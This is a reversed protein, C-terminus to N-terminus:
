RGEGRRSKQAIVFVGSTRLDDDPMAAFESALAARPVANSYAPLALVIDFGSDRLLELHASAPLRNILYPRRGRVLKWRWAPVTWHGFWDRSVGHSKFDIAHSMIGGPKLWRQLARYTAEIDDVHELVAQSFALDVSEDEVIGSATWPAAYRITVADDSRSEDALARRIAAKREPALTADLRARDLLHHPFELSDVSPYIEPYEDLGPLPERREFMEAISDFTTLNSDARAHPVADLAFYRNAGSLMAAIGIGVSDGPGLETVTDFQTPLGCAAIRELHRLWVSYCYRPSNTGGSGRCAYRSLGPVFTAIGKALAALKIQM